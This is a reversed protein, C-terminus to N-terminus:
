SIERFSELNGPKELNEDRRTEFYADRSSEDDSIESYIIIISADQFKQKASYPRPLVREDM